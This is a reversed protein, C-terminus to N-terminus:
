KLDNQYLKATIHIRNNTSAEIIKYRANAQQAKLSIQKEASELTNDTATISQAFSNMSLVSLVSALILKNFNKM